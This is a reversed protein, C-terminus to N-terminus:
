EKGVEQPSSSFERLAPTQGDAPSATTSPILIRQGAQIHDPDSLWPNLSRLKALIQSDYRGVNEVSIRYLTQGQLIHVPGPAQRLGPAAAGV